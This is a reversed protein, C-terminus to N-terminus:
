PMYPTLHKPDERMKESLGIFRIKGNRQLKQMTSYYKEVCYQYTDMTIGHFLM